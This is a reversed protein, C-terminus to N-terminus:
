LPAAGLAFWGIVPAAVTRAVSLPQCWAAAVYSPVVHFRYRSPLRSPVSATPRGAFMAVVTTVAIPVDSLVAVVGAGSPNKEPVMSSTRIQLAARVCAWIWAARFVSIVAGVVLRRPAQFRLSPVPLLRPSLEPLVTTPVATPAGAQVVPKTTGTTSVVGGAAGWSRAADAAGPAPM